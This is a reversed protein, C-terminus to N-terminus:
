DIKLDNWLTRIDNMKRRVTGDILTDGYRFMVGGLLSPEEVYQIRLHKGTFHELAAQLRPRLDAALPSATTVRASFIGREREVQAIFQEIVGPWLGGRFKDVLLLGLNLMLKSLHDTFVARLLNKKDETEIAPRELFVLLAKSERLFALLQGAEELLPDLQDSEKAAQALAEAYTELVPLDQERM